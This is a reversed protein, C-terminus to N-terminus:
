SESKDHFRAEDIEPQTKVDGVCSRLAHLKKEWTELM